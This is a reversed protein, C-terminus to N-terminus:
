LHRHFSTLLVTTTSTCRYVYLVVFLMGLRELGAGRGAASPTLTLCVSVVRCSKAGPCMCARWNIAVAPVGLIGPCCSHVDIPLFRFSVSRALWSHALGPPVARRCCFASWDLLYVVVLLLLARFRSAGQVRAVADAHRARGVARTGTKDRRGVLYGATPEASAFAV